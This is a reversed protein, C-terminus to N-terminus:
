NKFDYNEFFEKVGHELVTKTIYNAYPLLDSHSNSMAVGISAFELMEIDNHGDGIAITKEKPINYYKRIRELAAAKSTLPNYFESVLTDETFWHRLKVEDLYVEHVYKELLEESGPKSFLIAGNTDVNLIEDYDGIILNGGDLHMYPLIKDTKNLLYIDDKNECFINVLYDKTNKVFERVKEKRITIMTEEFNPDCPNHVYAGNYNIIPTKLDLWKYFECSSRWPRGTAIVIYNKKSLEKLVEFSEMDKDNFGTILTNDLDVAILYGEIEKYNKYKM